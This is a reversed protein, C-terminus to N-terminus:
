DGLHWRGEPIGGPRFEQANPAIQPGDEGENECGSIGAQKEFARKAGWEVQRRVDDAGIENLPGTMIFTAIEDISYGLQTLELGIAYCATHRGPLGGGGMPVGDGVKRLVWLPVTQDRKHQEIRRADSQQFEVKKHNKPVKQWDIDNGENVFVIESCPLFLRGGDRCSTDGCLVPLYLKVNYEFQELSTCLESMRFVIRYRDCAPDVKGAATVKDKQHSRTTGIMAFVEWDKVLAIAKELPLGRDVDFGLWGASEFNEKKRHNNKYVIPSWVRTTIFNALAASDPIEVPVFTKVAPTIEPAFSVSIKRNVGNTASPM